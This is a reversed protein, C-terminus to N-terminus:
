NQKKKLILNQKEIKAIECWYRADVCFEKDTKGGFYAWSRKWYTRIQIIKKMSLGFWIIEDVKANWPNNDKCIFIKPQKKSLWGTLGRKVWFNSWIGQKKTLAEITCAIIFGGKKPIM